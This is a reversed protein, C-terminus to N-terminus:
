TPARALLLREGGLATCAVAIASPAFLYLSASFALAVAAACAVVAAAVFRIARQRVPAGGRRPCRQAVLAAAAVSLAGVALLAVRPPSLFAPHPPAGFSVIGSALVLPLLPYVVFIWLFMRRSQGRSGLPRRGGEQDATDAAAVFRDAIAVAVAFAAYSLAGTVRRPGGGQAARINLLGLLGLQWGLLVMVAGSRQCHWAAGDLGAPLSTARAVAAIGALDALAAAFVYPGFFLASRSSSAYIIAVAAWFAGLALAARMTSALQPHRAMATM